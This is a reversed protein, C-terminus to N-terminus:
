SHPAPRLVARTEATTLAVTALHDRAQRYPGTADRHLTLVSGVLEIHVTSAMGPQEILIWPTALAPATVDRLLRFEAPQAVSVLHEIQNRVVGRSGACDVPVSRLAEPALYVTYSALLNRRREVLEDANRLPWPITVPSWQTITVAPDAEVQALAGDFPQGPHVPRWSYLGPDREPPIMGLLEARQEGGAGYFTLLAAVEDAKIRRLGTELRSLTSPTVGIARAAQEGTYTTYERRFTRLRAGLARDQPTVLPM